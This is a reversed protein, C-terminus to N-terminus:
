TILKNCNNKECGYWYIYFDDNNWEQFGNVKLTYQFLHRRILEAKMTLLRKSIIPTRCFAKNWFELSYKNKGWEWYVNDNISEYLYNNSHSLKILDYIELSLYINLLIDEPLNLINNM